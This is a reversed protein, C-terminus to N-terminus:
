SIASTLRMASDIIGAMSYTQVFNGWQEGTKPDIDEALLGHQNRRSLVHEFLNRAEDHDGIAPSRMSTGSPASSFRTRRGASTTVLLTVTFSIAADYIEDSRV